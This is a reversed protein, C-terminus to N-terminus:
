FADACPLASGTKKKYLAAASSLKAAARSAVKAAEDYDGNGVLAKAEAILAVADGVLDLVAPDLPVNEFCALRAQAAKIANDAHFRLASNVFFAYSTDVVPVPDVYYGVGVSSVAGVLLVAASLSVVYRM